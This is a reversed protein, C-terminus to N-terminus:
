DDKHLLKLEHHSKVLTEIGKGKAFNEAVLMM